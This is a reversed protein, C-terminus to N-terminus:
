MGLSDIGRDLLPRQPHEDLVATVIRPVRRQGFRDRLLKTHTPLSSAAPQDLGIHVRTGPRTHGTVLRSLDAPEPRLVPPQLLVVLDELRGRNEEGPFEVGCGNIMANM